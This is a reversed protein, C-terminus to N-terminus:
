FANTVIVYVINLFNSIGFVMIAGLLYPVLTKKYEAKEEVSGTMYKIGLIILCIIALASGVVQIVGLFTAVKDKFIDSDGQIQGYQNLDGLDTLANSTQCNVLILLLTLFVIKIIFFRKLQKKKMEKKGKKLCKRVSYGIIEM